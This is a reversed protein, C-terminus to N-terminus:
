GRTSSSWSGDEPREAASVSVKACRSRPSAEVPMAIRTTSCSASTIAAASSFEANVTYYSKGFLGFAGTFAPQHAFIYGVVVAALVILAIIAIFDRRHVRIARKM